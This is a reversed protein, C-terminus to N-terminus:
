EIDKEGGVGNEAGRVRGEMGGVGDEVDSGSDM